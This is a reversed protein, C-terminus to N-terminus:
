KKRCKIVVQAAFYKKVPYIKELAPQFFHIVRSPFAPFFFPVFGIFDLQEVVWGTEECWQKLLSSSFSREEHEIHYKSNKEIVKLIPNNGNPEIIILRDSLLASNAIASKPANLHHLVGRIVAMDYKEKPFTDPELVNGVSFTIHPYRQAAIGIAVRAPDFGTIKLCSKGNYIDNCYTGDGAGIDVLTKVDNAIWKLTADTMRKNALRSSLPAETTYKYGHNSAVDSNFVDVNKKLTSM